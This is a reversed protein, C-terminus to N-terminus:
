VEGHVARAFETLLVSSNDREIITGTVVACAGAEVKRAAEEPSSIGGGVIIPLAAAEDVASIMEQPVSERAGSGGELYIVRMGLYRAALAHAVAIDTKDRPIPTTGSLFAVSTMNGGDILLYATAITELGAARVRPASIVQEGILYHPNRGSLLSMFLIAHAKFSIQYGNGPFLILPLSCSERLAQVWRDFNNEFILSGGLLLGDVGAKQCREAVRVAEVENLKDPDLLVLFRGAGVTDAGFLKEYVSM